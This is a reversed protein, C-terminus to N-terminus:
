EKAAAHEDIPGGVGVLYAQFTVKELKVVSNKSNCDIYYVTSLSEFAFKLHLRIFTSFILIKVSLKQGCLDHISVYKRWKNVM